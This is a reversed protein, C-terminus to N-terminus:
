FRIHHLKNKNPTVGELFDPHDKMFDWAWGQLNIDFDFSCPNSAQSARYLIEEAILGNVIGDRFDFAITTTDKVM